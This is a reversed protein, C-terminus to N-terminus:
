YYYNNHLFILIVNLNTAMWLLRGCSKALKQGGGEGRHGCTDSEEQVGGGGLVRASM